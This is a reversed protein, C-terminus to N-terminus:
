MSTGRTLILIAMDTVKEQPFVRLFPSHERDGRRALLLPHLRERHFPQLIYVSAVPIERPTKSTLLAKKYRLISHSKTTHGANARCYCPYTTTVSVM